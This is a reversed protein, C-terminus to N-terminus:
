SADPKTRTSSGPRRCLVSFPRLAQGPPHTSDPSWLDKRWTNPGDLPPRAAEEALWQALDEAPGEEDVDLESSAPGRANRLPECPVGYPGRDRDAHRKPEHFDPRFKGRVLVPWPLALPFPSLVPNATGRAQNPARRGHGQVLCRTRGHESVGPKLPHSNSRKDLRRLRRRDRPGPRLM